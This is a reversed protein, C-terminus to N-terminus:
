EGHHSAPSGKRGGDGWARVCACRREPTHLFKAVGQLSKEVM